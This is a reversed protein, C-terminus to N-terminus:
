NLRINRTNLAIKGIPLVYLLISHGVGSLVKRKSAKLPRIKPMIKSVPEISKETGYIVHQTM